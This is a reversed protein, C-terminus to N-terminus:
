INQSVTVDSRKDKVREDWYETLIKQENTDPNIWLQDVAWEVVVEDTDPDVRGSHPYPNSTQHM